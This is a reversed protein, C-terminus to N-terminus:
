RGSLHLYQGAEYPDQKILIPVQKSFILGKEFAFFSCLKRPLQTSLLLAIKLDKPQFLHLSSFLQQSEKVLVLPSEVAIDKIIEPQLFHYSTWEMVLHFVDCFIPFKELGDSSSAGLSCTSLHGIKLNLNLHPCHHHHHYRGGDLSCLCHELVTGLAKGRIVKKLNEPCGQAM